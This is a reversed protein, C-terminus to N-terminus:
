KNMFSSVAYPLRYMRSALAEGGTVIAVKTEGLSIRRAAEDFLKVPQNGGHPSYYKHKPEVGLKQSLLGPLDPYLWTWSGVVDVSDIKSQLEGLEPSPLDTDKIALHIAQVMLQMPEIADEVRTSKNKIDGVGIVIPTARSPAM